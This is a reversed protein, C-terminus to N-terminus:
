QARGKPEVAHAEMWARLDQVRYRCKNGIKSYRPGTGRDRHAQFSKATFGCFAAAQVADVYEPIVFSSKGLLEMVYRAASLGIAEAFEATDPALSM